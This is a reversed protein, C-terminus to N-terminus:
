GAESGVTNVKSELETLMQYLHREMDEVDRDEPALRQWMYEHKIELHRIREAALRLEDAVQRKADRIGRIVRQNKLEISHAVAHIARIIKWLRLLVLAAPSTQANTIAPSLQFVFEMVLSALIVVADIAFIPQTFRRWGFAFLSTLVDFLFVFLLTISMAWLSWEGATLSPGAPLICALPQNLTELGQAHFEEM